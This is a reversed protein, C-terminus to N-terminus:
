KGVEPLVALGREILTEALLWDAECNIDFGEYGYTFYPMIIEGSVNGYKKLTKTHAIELSANQIYLSILDQTAHNFPDEQKTEWTVAKCFPRIGKHQDFYWMKYPHQKVSEIARLSDCPQYGQFATWAVRIMSANRFPNTPRLDAFCDYKEPLENLLHNIWEFEPSTDTAFEKPRLFPIEAGYGLAIDAIEQSDTSVVIREFIHAQRAATITYAILPHGNLLKINKHPIRKSKSRAPIIAIINM